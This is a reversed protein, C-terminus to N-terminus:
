ILYIWIASMFFCSHCLLWTFLVHPIISYVCSEPPIFIQIYVPFFASIIHMLSDMTIESLSSKPPSENVVAYM